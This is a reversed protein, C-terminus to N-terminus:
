EGTTGDIAERLLDAHGVHRAYEEVLHALVFRVSAPGFEDNDVIRDLDAEGLRQFVARSEACAALYDAYVESASTPDAEDYWEKGQETRYTRYPHFTPSTGGIRVGFWYREAGQLHRLLGLLSLGSALPRRRLEADTLGSCKWGLTARHFDLMGGIVTLWSGTLVPEPRSVAGIVAEDM